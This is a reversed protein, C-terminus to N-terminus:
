RWSRPAAGILSLRKLVKLPFYAQELRECCRHVGFPLNKNKGVTSTEYREVFHNHTTAAAGAAAAAM